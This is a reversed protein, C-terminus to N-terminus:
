HAKVEGQVPVHWLRQVDREKRQEATTRPMPKGPLPDFLGGFLADDEAAHYACRYLAFGPLDSRAIFSLINEADRAFFSAVESSNMLPARVMQQVLAHAESAQRGKQVQGATQGSLTAWLDPRSQGASTQTNTNLNEVTRIVETYGLRESVHKTTTLDTNGFFTLLGANGMFTEWAERYDRQLQTLDQIVPWLKVGFGAIQGAAAEVSEMRNLAAFEDLCFLVRPRGDEAPGTREMAEMALSVLLRLWRGHTSLRTAPLCLFVTVRDSKLDELRFDSGSLVDRMSDGVLFATHTDCTSVVSMRENFPKALMAGAAQAILEGHEKMATLTATFEKFDKTLLDRVRLLTRSAPPEVTAVYLILGRLFTRASQTWHAGDGTSQIILADAIQWALDLGRETGADLDALPNFSARFQTAPGTVRGYPDLVFVKGNGPDMPQSWESGIASRRSATLTALEGKPDIAIVSGPWYLLNPVILSVGKGARSGAVTLIHRDDDYGVYRGRQDRGLLFLGPRWPEKLVAAVEEASPWRGIAGAKHLDGDPLGRPFNTVADLRAAGGHNSAQTETDRRDRRAMVVAEPQFREPKPNRREPRAAQRGAGHRM